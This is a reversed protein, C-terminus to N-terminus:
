QLKVINELATALLLVGEDGLNILEEITEPLYAYYAEELDASGLITQNEDDIVGWQRVGSPSTFTAIKM